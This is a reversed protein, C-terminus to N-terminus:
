KLKDLVSLYNRMAPDVYKTDEELYVPTDSVVSQVTSKTSVKKNTFYSERIVQAKRAFSDVDEFELDEVLSLFKDKDTAALGDATEHLVSAVQYTAIEKKMEVNRAMQENLNESLEDIKEEMSSLVDFKEEPIDIYNEEFLNKLGSVFNELIESKMGRELAIENQEMWQEVVYDLYGDVKEILGETISTIEDEVYEEYAEQLTFLESKVRDIVAAEFITAAKEKFEESLEEGSTLADVYDQMNTEEPVYPYGTKGGLAKKIMDHHESEPDVHAYDPHGGYTPDEDGGYEFVVDANKPGYYGERTRHGITAGQAILNDTLKDVVSTNRGTKYQKFGELDPSHGRTFNGAGKNSTSGESLEETSESLIERIKQEISM